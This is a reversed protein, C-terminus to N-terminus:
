FNRNFHYILNIEKNTSDVLEDSKAYLINEIQYFTKEYSEDCIEKYGAIPNWSKKMTIKRAIHCSDKECLGNERIYPCARSYSITELGTHYYVDLGYEQMIKENKLNEVNIGLEVGCVGLQKFVKIKERDFLKSTRFYEQNANSEDRLVNDSWPIKSYSWDFMKGLIVKEDYNVTRLFFIIGLDNIVLKIPIKNEVISLLYSKVYNLHEQPVFPIVLKYHGVEEAIKILTNIDPIKRICGESGISISRGKCNTMSYMKFDEYTSFRIEHKYMM